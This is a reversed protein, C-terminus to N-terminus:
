SALQDSWDTKPPTGSPLQMNYVSILVPIAAALAAVATEQVAPDTELMEHANEITFKNIYGLHQRLMRSPAPKGRGTLQRERIRDGAETRLAALKEMQGAESGVARVDKAATAIEQANYGADAVLTALAKYPADNLALADTSGLVRLAAGNLGPAPLGVATLRNEAAIEKKVQGIATPRLGLARAIHEAKWGLDIMDRAGDRAEKATLRVGHQSNLTRALARLEQQTKSTTTRGAYEVEVVIAQFFKMDRKRLAGERTNGDILWNDETVVIPPFQSQGMQVAYLEVTEKPAYHDTERVQVRRDRSLQDLDYSSVLHWKLGLREIEATASPPAQPLATSVPVADRTQRPPM